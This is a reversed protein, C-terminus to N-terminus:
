SPGISRFLAAQNKPIVYVTLRSCIWDEAGTHFCCGREFLKQFLAIRKIAHRLIRWHSSVCFLSLFNTNHRPTTSQNRSLEAWGGEYEREMRLCALDPPKSILFLLSDGKGPEDRGFLEAPRASSSGPYSNVIVLAGSSM